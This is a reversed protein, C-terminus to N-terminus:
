FNLRGVQLDGKIFDGTESPEITGDNDDDLQEHLARISELADKDETKEYLQEYEREWQVKSDKSIEGSVVVLLVGTFALLLALALSIIRKM